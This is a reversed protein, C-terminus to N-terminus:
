GPQVARRIAALSDLLEGPRSHFIRDRGLMAFDKFVPRARPSSAFVFGDFSTTDTDFDSAGEVRYGFGELSRIIGHHLEQSHTSIFAYDIKAQGFARHAGAIMEAEFGQIDVHLIDLHALGRGEIFPDVEFQGKGVFGQIFEGAYGNRGFNYKGAAINNIDPEVLITTAQPRLKKLWMSYHGWYAGLEIMVPAEPMRRMVEQFVYEELPEHVGRNVILLQSFNGYYAYTGAFPVRNGNHLIVDGGQMTGAEPVREILLNIPDAIVERFRGPFDDANAKAVM